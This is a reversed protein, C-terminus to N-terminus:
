IEPASKLKDETRQKIEELRQGLFKRQHPDKLEGSELLGGIVIMASELEGMDELVFIEMQKAWYPINDGQAYQRILQACELALHEDKIRHKAIYVAHTMFSWRADPNEIFKESVYHIMKRQKEEDQVEAYFRIAALLPYQIKNDLELVLDLWEIVKDYNLEKLPISVGPQNDFAQLWLMVAKAATVPDDLSALKIISSQPPTPLYYRKVEFKTFYFHWLCQLFLSLLLAFGISKPVFSVDRTQKVYLKM